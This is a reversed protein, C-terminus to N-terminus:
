KEHERIITKCKKCYIYKLVHWGFNKSLFSRNSEKFTNQHCLKHKRGRPDMASNFIVRNGTTKEMMSILGNLFEVPDAGIIETFSKIDPLKM